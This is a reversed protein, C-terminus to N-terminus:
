LQCLHLSQFSTKSNSRRGVALAVAAGYTGCAGLRLYKAPAEDNLLGM